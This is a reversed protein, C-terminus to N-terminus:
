LVTWATAILLATFIGVSLRYSIVMWYLQFARTM